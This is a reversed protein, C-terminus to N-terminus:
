SLRAALATANMHALASITIMPNVGSASSSASGDCVVVDRREWLAGEYDCASSRADTGM